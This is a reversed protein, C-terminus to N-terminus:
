QDPRDPLRAAHRQDGDLVLADHPLQDMGPVLGGHFGGARIFGMAHLPHLGVHGQAAAPVHHLHRVHRALGHPEVLLAPELGHVEIDAHGLGPPHHQAPRRRGHRLLRAHAGLGELVEEEVHAGQIVALHLAGERRQRVAHVARVAHAERTRAGVQAEADPVDGGHSARAVAVDGVALAKGRRHAIRDVADDPEVRGREIVAHRKRVHLQPKFFAPDGPRRAVPRLLEVLDEVGVLPRAVDAFEGDAEVGVDGRGHQVDEEVLLDGTGEVERGPLSVLLGVVAVPGGDM